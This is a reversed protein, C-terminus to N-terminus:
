AACSGNLPMTLRMQLFWPSHNQFSYQAVFSVLGLVVLRSWETILPMVWNVVAFPLAFLEMGARVGLLTVQLGFGLNMGFVALLVTSITIITSVM